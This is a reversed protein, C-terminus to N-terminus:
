QNFVSAIADPVPQSAWTKNQENELADKIRAQERSATEGLTTLDDKLQQNLNKYQQHRKTSQNLAATITKVTKTMDDLTTILQKNEKAVEKLESRNYIQLGLLVVIIITALGAGTPLFDIFFAKILKGM